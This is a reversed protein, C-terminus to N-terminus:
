VENITSWTILQEFLFYSIASFIFILDYRVGLIITYVLKLSVIDKLGM